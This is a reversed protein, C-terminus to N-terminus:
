KKSKTSNKKNNTTKKVEAKKPEEVKVEEVVKEEVAEEVLTEKDEVEITNTVVEKHPTSVVQEKDTDEELSGSVVRLYGRKVLRKIISFDTNEYLPESVDGAKWFNQGSVPEWLSTNKVLQVVVPFKM